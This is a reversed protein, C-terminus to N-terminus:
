EWLVGLFSIAVMYHAGGVVSLQTSGKRRSEWFYATSLRTASVRNAPTATFTKDLRAKHSTLSPNTTTTEFM